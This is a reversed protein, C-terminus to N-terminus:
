TLLVKKNIENITTESVHQYALLLDAAVSIDALTLREGVLYTRPKLHENLVNLVQKVEDKAKNVSNKNFEVLSLAPFVWSAVAPVIENSGYELWQLLEANANGGRM